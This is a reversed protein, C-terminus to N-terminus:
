FDNVDEAVDELVEYGRTVIHIRSYIQLLCGFRPMARPFNTMFHGKMWEM